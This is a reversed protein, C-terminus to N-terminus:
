ARRAVFLEHKGPEVEPHVFPVTRANFGAAELMELWTARPFAGEVHRDHLLRVAGRADRILIAYDVVYTIDAPDPDWSWALYRVSEKDGDEGGHETTPRYNERVYDPAFLAVGGPKCHVFATDILARLDDETTMYCVADHVFVADFTRDLRVTRMDGEVHECEPNHRRSAELMGPSRDVLTMRFHRKMFSANNGGGSGLELVHELKGASAKEMEARYVGAELEYDEVASFVPWLSALEGYLRLGSTDTM